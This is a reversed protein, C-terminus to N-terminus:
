PKIITKIKTKTNIRDKERILINFNLTKEEVEKPHAYM